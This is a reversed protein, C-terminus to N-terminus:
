MIYGNALYEKQLFEDFCWTNQSSYLIYEMCRQFIKLVDLERFYTEVSPFCRSFM